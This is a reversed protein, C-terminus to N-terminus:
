TQDSSAASPKNTAPAATEAFLTAQWLHNALLTLMWPTRAM